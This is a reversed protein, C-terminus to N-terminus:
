AAGARVMLCDYEIVRLTAPDWSVPFLGAVEFGAKEFTSISETFHPMGDYIPVVSVESQLLMIGESGDPLGAFVELDFGQTDMKLFVRTGAFGFAPDAMLEALRRVEVSEFRGSTARSGFREECWENPSLFSTFGSSETVWIDRQGGTRGLAMRHCEWRRDDRSVASLAEFESAIPEFSVIRGSYGLNRLGLGFQGKNAGVDLVLDIGLRDLAAKLTAQRLFDNMGRALASDEVPDLVIAGAPYLHHVLAEGRHVLYTGSSLGRIRLGTARGFAGRLVEKIGGM